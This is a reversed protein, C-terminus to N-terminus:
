ELPIEEGRYPVYTSVPLNEKATVSFAEAQEEEGHCVFVRKAGPAKSLWFLLGDKDAHASFGSLNVVRANVDVMEGDIRIEKAGDLLRRGLTGRAQYGVFFVDTKADPLYEQLHGMIRGGTCMGSGAIIIAPGEINRISASHKGTRSSYLEKFSFPAEGKAIKQKMEEDYCDTHKSYLETVELGMPGDVVVPVGDFVRQRYLTNLHYLLEQTRGISFAPILVKGGNKFATDLHDKLMDVLAQGKAHCRDGYTSEIVVHEAIADPPYSVNPDRIIPTNRRGLDGSFLISGGDWQILASASGLIHGADFFTLSIKPTLMQKVQYRLPIFRSILSELAQVDPRHGAFQQHRLSDRLTLECIDLTAPHGYVPGRFGDAELLPLRGVHDLHGHTVIVATLKEANSVPPRSNLAVADDEGQFVGCDILFENDGITLHYASGTVSRAAGMPRLIAKMSLEKLLPQM